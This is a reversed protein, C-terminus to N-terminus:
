LWDFFYKSSFKHAIIWIVNWSLPTLNTFFKIIELENFKILFFSGSIVLSFISIISYPKTDIYKNILLIIIIITIAIISPITFSNNINIKKYLIMLNVENPNCADLLQIQKIADDIINIPEVINHIFKTIGFLSLIIIPIIDVKNISFFLGASVWLLGITLGFLLINKLIIEVIIEIKYTINENIVLFLKKLLQKINAIPQWVNNM